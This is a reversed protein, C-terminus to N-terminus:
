SMSELECRRVEWAGRVRRLECRYTAAHRGHVHHRAAVFATAASEFEPVGVHFVQAPRGTPVHEDGDRSVACESAPVVDGHVHQMRRVLTPPAPTTWEGASLCLVEAGDWLAMEILERMATEQVALTESASSSTSACSLSALALFAVLVNLRTM